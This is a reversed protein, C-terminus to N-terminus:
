PDKFITTKAADGAFALGEPIATPRTEHRDDNRIAYFIPYVITNPARRRVQRDASM